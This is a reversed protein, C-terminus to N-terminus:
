ASEEFPEVRLDGRARGTDVDRNLRRKSTSTRTSPLARANGANQWRQAAANSAHQERKAREARFGRLEFTGHPGVAVLEDAVLRRLPKERVTRPLHPNSPWAQESAVLLWQWTAFAAEDAYIHPYEDMFQEYYFRSFKRGDRSM